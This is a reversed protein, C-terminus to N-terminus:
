RFTSIRLTPSDAGVYTGTAVSVHVRYTGGRRVTVSKSYTSFSKGGRRTYTGAVRVWHGTSSLKQISVASGPGTPRVAGHFNVRNGRRVRTRSAASSVRVAAGVTAVPSMVDVKSALVVRYQTTSGVSIVPFAFNGAADTVLPNGVNLFGQTYPFPNQQLIVAQGANGTGSLTGNLV